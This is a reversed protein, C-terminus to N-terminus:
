ILDTDAFRHLTILDLKDAMKPTLDNTKGERFFMTNKFQNHLLKTVYMKSDKVNQFSCARVIDQIVNDKEEQETFTLKLFEALAKLRAIPDDM